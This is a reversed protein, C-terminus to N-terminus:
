GAEQSGASDEAAEEGDASEKAGRPAVVAALLEDRGSLLAVHEPISLDAVTLKGGIDLKSVDAQIFPPIQGPLGEVEIQTEQLQLLGGAKVGVPTGTLEVPIKIKVPQDMAVQQFDVHLLDGTFPHRQVETLLVPYQGVGDIQLDILESRGTALQKRVDKLSLHVALETVKTGYVIGPLRGASRLRRMASRTSGGRQEANLCTRM